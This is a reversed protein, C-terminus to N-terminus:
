ESLIPDHGPPTFPEGDLPEPCGQAAADACMQNAIAQNIQNDGTEDVCHNSTCGIIFNGASSGCSLTRTTDGNTGLNCSFSDSAKASKTIPLAGVLVAVIFLSFALKAFSRTVRTHTTKSM